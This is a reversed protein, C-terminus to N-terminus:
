RLPHQRFLIINEMLNTKPSHSNISTYMSKYISYISQDFFLALILSQLELVAMAYLFTEQFFVHLAYKTYIYFEVSEFCKRTCHVGSHTDETQLHM